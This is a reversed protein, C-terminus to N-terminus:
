DNVYVKWCQGGDCQTYFRGRRDRFYERQGGSNMAVLRTTTVRTTSPRPTSATWLPVSATFGASVSSSMPRSVARSRTGSASVALANGANWAEELEARTNARSAGHLLKMFEMNNRYPELEYAQWGHDTVMHDIIQDMSYSQDYGYPLGDYTRLVYQALTEDEPGARMARQEPKAPPEDSPTEPSSTASCTQQLDTLTQTLEDLRATMKELAAAQAQLEGHDCTCERFAESSAAVAAQPEPIPGSIAGIFASAALM